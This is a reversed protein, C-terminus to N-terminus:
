PRAFSKGARSGPARAPNPASTTSSCCRGAISLRTAMRTMTRHSLYDPYAQSCSPRGTSHVLLGDDGSLPSGRCTPIDRGGVGMDTGIVGLHVDQVPRFHYNGGAPALLNRILDPIAEAMLQQEDAMSASDDVVLLVDVQVPRPIYVDDTFYRATEPTDRVTRLDSCACSLAAVLLLGTPAAM